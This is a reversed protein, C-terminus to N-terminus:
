WWKSISLCLSVFISPLSLVRSQKFPVKTTIALSGTGENKYWPTEWPTRMAGEQNGKQAGKRKTGESTV